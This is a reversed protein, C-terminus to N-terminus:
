RDFQLFFDVQLHGAGVGFEVPLHQLQDLIRQGVHDAVRRVVPDFHRRIALRLALRFGARNGEVSVVFAAVDDDLDGVVAGPQVDLLNPFLHDSVTERGVDFELSHVILLNLLENEPRSERRGGLDRRHRAAADAHIDNAGVDFLDAPGDLENGLLPLPRREQDLDREGQRDYGGQDDFAGALSKRYRLDAHQFEDAGARVGLM